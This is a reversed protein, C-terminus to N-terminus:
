VRLGFGPLYNGVGQVGVRFGSGGLDWFRFGFM